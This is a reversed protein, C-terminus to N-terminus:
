ANSSRPSPPGPMPAWNKSRARAIQYQERGDGSKLLEALAPVAPKAAPGMKCIAIAVAIRMEADEHEHKLLPRLLPVRERAPLGIREVTRITYGVVADADHKLGAKLIPLAKAPDGGARVYACASELAVILYRDGIATELAPLVSRAGIGITALARAARARVISKKGGDDLVGAM